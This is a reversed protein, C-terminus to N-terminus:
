LFGGDGDDDWDSNEGIGSDFKVQSKETTQKSRDIQEM